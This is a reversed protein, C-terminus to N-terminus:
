IFTNNNTFTPMPQNTIVQAMLNGMLDEEQLPMQQQLAQLAQQNPPTQEDQMMNAVQFPNFGSGFLNSANQSASTVPSSGLSTISTINPGALPIGTTNFTAGGGGTIYKVNSGLGGGLGGGFSAGLGAGMLTGRLGNEKDLMGGAIATAIPLEAGSM